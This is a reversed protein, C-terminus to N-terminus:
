KNHITYLVINTHLKRLSVLMSFTTLMFPNNQRFLVISPLKTMAYTNNELYLLNNIPLGLNLLKEFCNFSHFQVSPILLNSNTRNKRSIIKNTIKYNLFNYVIGYIGIGILNLQHSKRQFIPIYNYSFTYNHLFKTQIFSIFQKNKLLPKVWQSSIVFYYKWDVRRKRLVPLTRVFSTYSINYKKFRTTKRFIKFKFKTHLNVSTKTRLASIVTTTSNIYSWKRIM